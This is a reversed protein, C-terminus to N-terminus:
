ANKLTAVLGDKIARAARVKPEASKCYNTDMRTLAITSSIPRKHIEPLYPASRRGDPGDALGSFRGTKGFRQSRFQIKTFFRYLNPLPKPHAVLQFNLNQDDRTV